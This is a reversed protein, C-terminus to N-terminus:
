KTEGNRGNTEGEAEDTEDLAMEVEEFGGEPVPEMGMFTERWEERPVIEEASRGAANAYGTLATTMKAAVDAREQESLANPDPWSVRFDGGIPAPLVGAETLRRVLPRLLMPEAYSQQREAVRDNWNREDQQSALEGRESGILIRKPIRSAGALLDLIIGVPGSPDHVAHNIASLTIGRTRLFRRLAHEYEDMEDSLAAEEDATLNDMEADMAANIGGRANLWFMEAGGGVLKKLDILRNFVNALRPRGYVDNDLAGDCIHLVRTWHVAQTSRGGEEGIQIAYQEPLGFRPDTSTTVWKSITAREEGYAQLYLLRRARTVPQAMNDPGDFGLLLVSYRGLGALIDARTIYQWLGVERALATFALEFATESGPDADDYVQPPTRWTAVPYAQVLTTAIDERDYAERYDQPRLQSPYGLVTDLQRAGGHSSALGALALRDTLVSNIATLARSLRGPRGNRPTVIEPMAQGKM